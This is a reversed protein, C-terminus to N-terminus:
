RKVNSGELVGELPLSSENNKLQMTKGSLRVEHCGSGLERGRDLCLQDKRIRWKGTTKHGM